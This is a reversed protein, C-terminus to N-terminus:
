VHTVGFVRVGRAYCEVAINELVVKFTGGVFYCEVRVRFAAICVSLFQGVAFAVGVTSGLLVRM